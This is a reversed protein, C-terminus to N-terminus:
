IFLSCIQSEFEFHNTVEEIDQELDTSLDKPDEEQFIDSSSPEERM